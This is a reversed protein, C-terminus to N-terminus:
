YNTPKVLSPNLEFLQFWAAAWVSEQNSNINFINQMSADVTNFKSNVSSNVDHAYTSVNSSYTSVNIAYTSVNAIRNNLTTTTSALRSSVDVAYASVNAVRTNIRTSLDIAYSSANAIRANLTATTSALRSSVDVAYASVNAVRAHINTSLDIAYNSVNAVRTNIRTSLDIEYSSVNAVRANIRTSLDDAYTSVNAVNANTASLRTSIDNVYTSVNAVRSNIATSLDVAYTSVNIAYTSVNEVRTSLDTVVTAQAYGAQSHDGWSYATQFDTLSADKPIAYSTDMSVALTGSTTIPSGSISLGTPVTMAVSSVSGYNKGEVFSAVANATVLDVSTSGADIGTSFDKAAATGLTPRNEISADGSTANWDPNVNPEAANWGEISADTLGNLIGINSHTHKKSVADNYDAISANPIWDNLSSNIATAVESETTYQDLQLDDISSNIASAVDAASQPVYGLATSVNAASMEGLITAASKNEVNGLGIDSKTPMAPMKVYFDVGEVEGIKSSTDWTLTPNEAVAKVVGQIFTLNSEEVPM